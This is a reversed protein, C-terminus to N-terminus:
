PFAKPISPGAQGSPYAYNVVTNNGTTNVTTNVTNNVVIAINNVVIAINVVINGMNGVVAINGGVVWAHYSKKCVIASPM